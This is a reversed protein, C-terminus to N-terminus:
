RKIPVRRRSHRLRNLIASLGPVTAGDNGGRTDVVADGPDPVSKCSGRSAGSEAQEQGRSRTGQGPWFSLAGSPTGDWAKIRAGDGQLLPGGGRRSQERAYKNGRTAVSDM